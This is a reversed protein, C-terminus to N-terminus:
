IVQELDRLQDATNGLNLGHWTARAIPALVGLRPVYSRMKLAGLPTQLACTGVVGLGWGTYGLSQASLTCGGGPFGYLRGWAVASAEHFNKQRTKGWNGAIVM